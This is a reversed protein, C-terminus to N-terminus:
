EIFLLIIKFRKSAHICSIMANVIDDVNKLMGGNVPILPLIENVIIIKLEQQPPPPSRVYIPLSINM